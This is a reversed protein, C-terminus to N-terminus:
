SKEGLLKACHYEGPQTGILPDRWRLGQGVSMLPFASGFKARINSLQVALSGLPYEARQSCSFEAVFSRSVPRGNGQAVIFLAKAQSESVALFQDDIATWYLGLTWRGRQITDVPDGCNLCLVTM